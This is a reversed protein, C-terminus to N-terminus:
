DKIQADSLGFVPIWKETRHEPMRFATMLAAVPDSLNSDRGVKWSSNVGFSTV